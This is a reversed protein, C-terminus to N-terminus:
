KLPENFRITAACHFVVNVNEALVSQDEKSLDLEPLTLDSKVAIIKGAFDPQEEQLKEFLQASFFFM